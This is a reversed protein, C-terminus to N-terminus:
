RVKQQLMVPNPWRFKDLCKEHSCSKSCQPKYTLKSIYKYSISVCTTAQLPTRDMAQHWCSGSRSTLQPFSLRMRHQFGFLLTGPPSTTQSMAVALWHFKSTEHHGRFGARMALELKSPRTLTYESVPPCCCTWVLLLTPWTRCNEKEPTSGCFSIITTIAQLCIFLIM